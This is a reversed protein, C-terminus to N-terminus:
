YNWNGVNVEAIQVTNGSKNWGKIVIKLYRYQHTVSDDEYDIASDKIKLDCENVDTRIAIDKGILEFEGPAKAGYVDIQEVRLFASKNDTRHMWKLANFSEERMLDITFSLEENAGVTIGGASKGPKVLALCTGLDGDVVLEPNGGVKNDAFYQHSATVTWDAVDIYDYQAERVKVVLENVVDSGDTAYVSITADGVQLTEIIGEANVTAVEENSSKYRLAPNNAKDPLVSIRDGINLTNGLEVFCNKYPSPIVIEEVKFIHQEVKVLATAWLDTNNTAIVNLIAEGVGKPQIVGEETVEFVELNSSKYTYKYEDKNIAEAPLTVVEIQLQQETTLKYSNNETKLQIEQVLLLTNDKDDSCSICFIFLGILIYLHKM